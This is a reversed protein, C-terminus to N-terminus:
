IMQPYNKNQKTENAPSTSHSNHLTFSSEVGTRLRGRGEVEM